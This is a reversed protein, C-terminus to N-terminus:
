PRAPSRFLTRLTTRDADHMGLRWMVLTGGATALAVAGLRATADALGVALVVVVVGGLAVAATRLVRESALEQVRLLRLRHTMVFLLVADLTVRLTWALAAGTVGFRGVLFYALLAHIPLEVLHLKATVDPRGSGHLLVYPVQAAANVLVGLGLIRLALGSEAAFEEGLWLRLGDAAGGILLLALPAVLLLIVKVSRAALRGAREWQAGGGLHSFAPYLTTAVAMPIVALRVVVEYPAAYYAVAAMSILVGILFRDLYVLLPSVVTSVATWGGFGLMRRWDARHLGPRWDVAPFARLAMIVYAALAGLRAVLILTFVGPLGWGSALALLPLLYSSLTAPLRVMTVLDFRQGAELVGMFSRSLGVLPLAVALVRFCYEAEPWLSPPIQFLSRVLWPTALFLAAGQALGVVAQMSATTWVIRGLEEGADRGLAEASFKTTTSGFGLEGLYALAMWAIALVGFRDTGLGGVLLPVVALAALMPAGFGVLNLLSNRALLRGHPQPAPGTM